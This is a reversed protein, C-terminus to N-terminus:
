CYAKWLEVLLEQISREAGAIDEKLYEQGRRQGAGRNEGDVCSTRMWYSCGDMNCCASHHHRERDMLYSSQRTGARAREDWAYIGRKSICIGVLEARVAHRECWRCQGLRCHRLALFQLAVYVGVRHARPSPMNGKCKSTHLLVWYLPHRKLSQHTRCHHIRRKRSTHLTSSALLATPFRQISSLHPITRSPPLLHALRLGPIRSRISYRPLSACPASVPRNHQRYNGHAHSLLRAPLTRAHFTYTPCPFPPRPPLISHHLQQPILSRVALLPHLHHSHAM